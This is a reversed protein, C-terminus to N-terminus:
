DSYGNHSEQTCEQLQTGRKYYGQWIDTCSNGARLGTEKCVDFIEVDGTPYSVTSDTPVQKMLDAYTHVALKRHQEDVIDDNGNDMIMGEYQSAEDMSFWVACVYEPTIGIFWNDANNESTGTKGCIDLGEVATGEATGGEQTVLHMMRNCIYATDTSLVRHETDDAEGYIRDRIWLSRITHSPTYVGGNAFIQYYGAMDKVTVGDKLYGLALDGLIEDEGKSQLIRRETAMDMGLKQELFDCSIKAYLAGDQDYLTIM